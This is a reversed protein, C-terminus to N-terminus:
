WSAARLLPVARALQPLEGSLGLARRAFWRRTVAKAGAIGLLRGALWGAPGEGRSFVENFVSMSTSMLVNHTLRAQEYGRLVRTAGPDEREAAAGALAEVLAAADLLGLNVGQGALPHVVHAADGLLAARPGILEQAVRRQLPVALRQGCLRTEGLVRDSAADLRAAFAEPSLAMLERALSNEASWVISCCGDFLPLLALPGTALFRQWATHQHPKATAITAVIASQRYDHASVGIGLWERVQSHAGDAGVVLRTTVPANACQLTAFDTASSMGTVRQALVTGGAAQFAGLSAQSLAHNEAITGLNPEALEAADFCLATPGDAPVSAHWVRMREYACLRAADLREWAGAQRLIQESARSLASVRLAPAAGAEIAKSSALANGLGDAGRAVFAALEPALLAIRAPPLRAHRALLAATAAGVPGAGIVVVDFDTTM